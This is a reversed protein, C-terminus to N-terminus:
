ALDYLNKGVKKFLKKNSLGVLITNKKVMRRTLVGEIIEDRSLPRKAHKLIDAIIDSVVGPKYGWESLAYMGRGVLVFRKDKILKNHVTEKFATRKDLGKANIMETIKSYHEPKGHHKMVLYAKDGVDKPRIENWNAMGFEGFPNKQVRVATHILNIIALDTLAEPNAKYLESQKIEKLFTEASLPQKHTDLIGHVLTIFDHVFTKQYGLKAWAQRMHEDEDHAELEVVLNLLFRVANAEDTSSINLHKLLTQEAMIGGHETIVSLLLDRASVFAELEQVARRLNKLLEKEIQRVRERTLGHEEGVTKLTQTQEGKLGYRKALIAQERAKLPALITDIILGLELQELSQKQQTDIITDLIGM